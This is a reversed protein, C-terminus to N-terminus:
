TIKMDKYSCLEKGAVMGICNPRGMSVEVQRTSNGMGATPPESAAVAEPTQDQPVAFM